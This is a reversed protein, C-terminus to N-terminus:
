RWGANRPGPTFSSSPSSTPASGPARTGTRTGGRLSAKPPPEATGMDIVNFTPLRILDIVMETEQETLEDLDPRGARSVKHHMFQSLALVSDSLNVTLTTSVTMDHYSPVHDVAFARFDCDPAAFYVEGIRLIEHLQEADYDAYQRRLEYLAPDLV